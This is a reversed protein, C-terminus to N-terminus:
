LRIAPGLLTNEGKVYVNLLAKIRAVPERRGANNAEAASAIGYAEVSFHRCLYIARPLHSEASFIITRELQFVKAARECSEYTSRGAFDEQLEDANIGREEILYRKMAAPENYFEYRNDGSLVLKSVYGKNLADAAVDLRSQLERYPKGDRNVGAGLVLGVTAINQQKATEDRLIYRGYGGITMLGVSVILIGLAVAIVSIETLWYPLRTRHWMGANYGNSSPM